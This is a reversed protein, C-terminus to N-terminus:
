LPLPGTLFHSGGVDKKERVWDKTDKFEAGPPAVDAQSCELTFPRPSSHSFDQSM